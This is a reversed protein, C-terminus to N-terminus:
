KNPLYFSNPYAPAIEEISHGFKAAKLRLLSEKIEERLM